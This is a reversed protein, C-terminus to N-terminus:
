AFTGAFTYAKEHKWKEDNSFKKNKEDFALVMAKIEDPGKDLNRMRLYHHSAVLEIWDTKSEFDGPAPAEALVDKIGAIVGKAYQTYKVANKENEANRQKNQADLARTEVVRLETSFPGYTDWFFHCGGLDLGSAEALYITKQFSIRETLTKGEYAKEWVEEYFDLIIDRVVIGGNAGLRYYTVSCISLNCM